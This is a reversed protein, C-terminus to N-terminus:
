NWVFWADIDGAAPVDAKIGPASDLGAPVPPTLEERATEGAGATHGSEIDTRAVHGAGVYVGSRDGGALHVRGEAVRLEVGNFEFVTGRVSATATPSKVTFELSGGVPPKVNARIRGTRLSLNVQENKNAAALEELSLRTLPQVNLTSNGIEILAGSKFGTSIMTRQELTQGRQGPKWDTAGPEKVEVTGRIERLLARTETGEQAALAQISWLLLLGALIKKMFDEM